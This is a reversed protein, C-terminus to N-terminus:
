LKKVIEKNIAVDIRNFDQLTAYDSDLKNEEEEFRKEFFKLHSELNKIGKLIKKSKTRESTDLNNSFERPILNPSSIM